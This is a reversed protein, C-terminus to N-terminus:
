DSKVWDTPSCKGVLAFSDSNRKWSIRNLGIPLTNTQLVWVSCSNQAEFHGMEKKCYLDLRRAHCRVGKLGLRPLSKFWRLSLIPSEAIERSPDLCVLRDTRRALVTSGFYNQPNKNDQVDILFEKVWRLAISHLFNPFKCDEWVLRLSEGRLSLSEFIYPTQTVAMCCHTFKVM